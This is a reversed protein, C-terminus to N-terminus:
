FYQRRRRDIRGCRAGAIVRECSRREEGSRWMNTYCLQAQCAEMQALQANPSPYGVVSCVQRLVPHGAEDLILLRGIRCTASM